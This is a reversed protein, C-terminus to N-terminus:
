RWQRPSTKTGGSWAHQQVTKSPDIARSALDRRQQREKSERWFWFGALACTAISLVVIVILLLVSM